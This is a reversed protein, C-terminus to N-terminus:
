GDRMERMIQELEARQTLVLHDLTGPRPPSAPPPVYLYHHHDCLQQKRLHSWRSAYRRCYRCRKRGKAYYDTM